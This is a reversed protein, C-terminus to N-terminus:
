IKDLIEDLESDIRQKVAEKIHSFDLKNKCKPCEVITQIKINKNNEM